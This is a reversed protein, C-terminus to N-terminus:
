VKLKRIEKKLSKIYQQKEEIIKEYEDKIEDLSMKKFFTVNDVQVSWSVTNNTLIVYKDCNDKNKLFGGFRFKRETEGNKNITNTFYRLHSGINVKSIDDCEIYNKLAENIEEDSIKDQITHKPRSYKRDNSISITKKNLDM